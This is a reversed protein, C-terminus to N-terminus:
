KVTNYQQDPLGPPKGRKPSFPSMAHFFPKTLDPAMMTENENLNRLKPNLEM